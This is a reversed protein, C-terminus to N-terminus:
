THNSPRMMYPVASVALLVQSPLYFVWVMPYAQSLWAPADFYLPLNMVLVCIDCAAFLLLGTVILTRNRQLHRASVYINIIFFAAYLATIVYISSIIHTAALLSNTADVRGSLIYSLVINVPAVMLLVLWPLIRQVGGPKNSAARLIYAVHAFCFVAVGILHRNHLILFYDAAVTFALGLTLWFWDRKSWCFFYSALAVGFCAAILIFRWDVLFSAYVRGFAGFDNCPSYNYM